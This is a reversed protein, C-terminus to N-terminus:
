PRDAEGPLAWLCAACRHSAVAGRGAALCAAMVAGRWTIPAGAVVYVGRHVRLWRRSALRHEILASTAGLRLAEGRSFVGHHSLAMGAISADISAPRKSHQAVVVAPTDRRSPLRPRCHSARSSPTLWRTRRRRSSRSPEASSTPNSGVPGKRAWASELRASEAARASRRPLIRRPETATAARASRKASLTPNSGM